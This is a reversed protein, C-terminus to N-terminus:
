LSMAYVHGCRFNLNKIMNQILQEISEFNELSVSISKHEGLPNTYTLKDGIFVSNFFIEKPTNSDESFLGKMANEAEGAVHRGKRDVSRVRDEQHSISDRVDKSDILVELIELDALFIEFNMFAEPYFKMKKWSMLVNHLHLVYNQTYFFILDDRYSSIFIGNEIEVKQIESAIEYEIEIPINAENGLSHKSLISNRIESRLKGMERWKDIEIWAKRQEISQNQTDTNKYKLHNFLSYAARKMGDEWLDKLGDVQIRAKVDEIAFFSGSYLLQPLIYKDLNVIM